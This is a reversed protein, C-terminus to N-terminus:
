SKIVLGTIHQHGQLLLGRVDSLADVQISFLFVHSGAVLDTPRQGRALHGSGSTNSM